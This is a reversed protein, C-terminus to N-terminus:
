GLGEFIGESVPRHPSSTTAESDDEIVGYIDRINIFVVDCGPFSQEIQRLRPTMGQMLKQSRYFRRFAVKDGRKLDTHVWHTLEEYKPANSRPKGPAQDWYGKSASLVWAIGLDSGEDYQSFVMEIIDSQQRMPEVLLLVNQGVAQVDVEPLTEASFVIESTEPFM